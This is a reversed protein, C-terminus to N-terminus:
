GRGRHNRSAAPTGSKKTSNQVRQDHLKQLTALKAKLAAKKAKSRVKAGAISSVTSGRLGANSM